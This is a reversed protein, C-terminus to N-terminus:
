SPTGLSAIPKNIGVILLLMVIIRYHIQCEQNLNIEVNMFTYEYSYCGPLGNKLCRARIEGKVM